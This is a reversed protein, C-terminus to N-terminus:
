IHSFHVLKNTSSAVYTAPTVKQTTTINDNIWNINKRLSSEVKHIKMHNKLFGRRKYSADCIDCKFARADSHTHMHKELHFSSPFTKNCILCKHTTVLKQKVDTPGNMVTPEDSCRNSSALPSEGETAVSDSITLEEPKIIPTFVKMKMLSSEEM